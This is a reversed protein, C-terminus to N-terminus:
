IKIYTCILLLRYNFPEFPMMKIFTNVNILPKKIFTNVFICEIDIQITGCKIVNPNLTYSHNHMCIGLNWKRLYIHAETFKISACLTKTSEQCIFVLFTGM